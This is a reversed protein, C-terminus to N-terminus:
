FVGNSLRLPFIITADIETGFKERLCYKEYESEESRTISSPDLDFILMKYSDAGMPITNLILTLECDRVSHEYSLNADILCGDFLLSGDGNYLKIHREVEPSTRLLVHFHLIMSDFNDLPIDSGMIGCKEGWEKRMESAFDSRVFIGSNEVHISRSLNFYRM